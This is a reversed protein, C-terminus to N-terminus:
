HLVEMGVLGNTAALLSPMLMGRRQTLGCQVQRQTADVIVHASRSLGKALRSIDVVTGTAYQVCSVAVM